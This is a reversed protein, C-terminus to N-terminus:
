FTVKLILLALIIFLAVMIYTATMIEKPKEEEKAIHDEKTSISEEKHENEKNSSDEAKSAEDNNKINSSEEVSTIDQTSKEEISQISELPEKGTVDSPTLIAKIQNLLEISELIYPHEKGYHKSLIDQSKLIFNEAVKYNKQEFYTYAINRYCVGTQPDQEGCTKFCIKLSKFYNQLAEDYNQLAFNALGIDNFSKAVIPDDEGLFRLKIELSKKHNELAEKMLGQAEYILAIDDHCHAISLDEEKSIKFRIRLSNSIDDLAEELNGQAKKALGLYHYIDATIDNDEVGSSKELDLSRKFNDIAEEYNGLKYFAVGLNYHYAGFESRDQGSMIKIQLCKLLYELAEMNKDVELYVLGINNYEDALEPHDNGFIQARIKLSEYYNELATPYQKLRFCVLGINSYANAVELHDDGLATKLIQLSMQYHKLAQELQKSKLYVRCIDNYAYAVLFHHEGHVDKRIELVLKYYNLAEEFKDNKLLTEALAQYTKVVESHYEGYLKLKLNLAKKFNTVSDEFRSEKSYIIGLNEYANPLYPVLEDCRKNGININETFYNLASEFNKQVLYINGIKFCLRAKEPHDEALIKNCVELAKIYNKLAEPFEEQLIFVGGIKSYCEILIFSDGISQEISLTESYKQIAEDYKGQTELICGNIFLVRSKEKLDQSSAKSEESRKNLWYDVDDFFSLPSYKQFDPHPFLKMKDYIKDLTYRNYVKKLKNSLDLGRGLKIERIPIMRDFFAVKLMDALRPYHRSIEKLDRTIEVELPNKWLVLSMITMAISFIEAKYPDYVCTVQGKTICEVIEPASYGETGAIDLEQKGAEVGHVALSYNRLKFCWDETIVINKPSIDRHVIKLERLFLVQEHLQYLLETLLNEEWQIRSEKLFAVFDLLSGKGYELIISYQKGPMYEFNVLQLLSPNEQLMLITYLERMIKHDVEGVSLMRIKKKVYIKRTHKNIVRYIETNTSEGLKDLIEPEEWLQHKRRLLYNLETFILTLDQLDQTTLLDMNADAGMAFSMTKENQPDINEVICLIKGLSNTLEKLKQRLNNEEHIRALNSTDISSDAGSSMLSSGEFDKDTFLLGDQIKSNKSQTPAGVQNRRNKNEDTSSKRSKLATKKANIITYSTGPHDTSGKIGYKTNNLPSHPNKKPSKVGANYVSMNVTKCSDVKAARNFPARPQQTTRKSQTELVNSALTFSGQINFSNKLNKTNM